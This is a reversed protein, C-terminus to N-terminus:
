INSIASQIQQLIQIIKSRPCALNIRVHQEGAKGFEEGYSVAVGCKEEWFRHLEESNLGLDTCDVWALYTGESLITKLPVCKEKITNAFMKKNEYIYKLIHDLWDNSERYAGIIVAEAFIHEFPYAMDKIKRQVKKRIDEDEIILNAVQTGAVNFSKGPSTITIIQVKRGTAMKGVMTHKGEFVFDFHIDDSIVILRHKKCFELVKELEELTWVRGVPNHPNCLLFAKTKSTVCKEMDEFDFHYMANELKLPSELVKRGCGLITSFFNGYAPTNLLIEDGENTLAQLTASLGVMGSSCYLIWESEIDYSHKQSMWYKVADFYEKSLLEYGFVGEDIRRKMRERIAPSTEFEMDAVWMPYINDNGYLNKLSKWKFSNTEKRNTDKDFNYEM